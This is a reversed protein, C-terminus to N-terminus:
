KLNEMYEMHFIDDFGARSFTINLYLMFIVNPISIEQAIRARNKRSQEPNSLIFADIGLIL